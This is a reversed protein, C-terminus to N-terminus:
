IIQDRVGPFRNDIEEKCVSQGMMDCASVQGDRVVFIMSPVKRGTGVVHGAIIRIECKSETVVYVANDGQYRLHELSWTM